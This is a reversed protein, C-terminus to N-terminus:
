CLGPSQIENFSLFRLNCCQSKNKQLILILRKKGGTKQGGVGQAYGRSPMRYTSIKKSEEERNDTM